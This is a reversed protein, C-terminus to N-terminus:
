QESRRKIANQIAKSFRRLGDDQMEQAEQHHSKNSHEALYKSKRLCYSAERDMLIRSFYIALTKWLQATLRVDSKFITEFLEVAKRRTEPEGPYYSLLLELEKMRSIINELHSCYYSGPQGLANKDEESIEGYLQEEGRDNTISLPMKIKRFQSVKLNIM